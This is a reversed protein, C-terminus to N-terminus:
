QEYFINLYIISMICLYLISFLCFPLAKVLSIFFGEVFIFLFDYFPTMLNM